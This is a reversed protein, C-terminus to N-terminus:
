YPVNNNNDPNGSRITVNDEEIMYIIYVKGFKDDDLKKTYYTVPLYFTGM